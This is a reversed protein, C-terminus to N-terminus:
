FEPENIEDDDFGGVPGRNNSVPADRDRRAFSMFVGGTAERVFDPVEQGTTELEKILQEAIDRDAQHNPDFFSTAVGEGLRGTRGIRHIYTGRDGGSPLEYNIVHGLDTFDMGRAFVNTVVLVRYEGHRFGATAEERLPKLVITQAKIGEDSLMTAIYDATRKMEVFVLKKPLVGGNEESEKKLMKLLYMKREDIPVLVFKQQIRKNATSVKNKIMVSDKRCLENAIQAIEGEFTASFFLTQRVSADPFGSVQTMQVIDDMFSQELLRDAEDLVLFQLGELKLHGESLLHKMRGPTGVLIDCGETELSRKNVGMNYEGYCFNVKVDTNNAFKSAQEYLQKALERTPEIVLASVKMRRPVDPEEAFSTRGLASGTEAQGKVDYGDLVLPMAYQQFKRPKAYNSRQVNKLIQPLFKAEEWTEYIQVNEPGNVVEVNCDTDFLNDAVKARANDDNFIEDIDRCKPIFSRAPARDDDFNDRNFDRRPPGDFNDRGAFGGRRGGFGGRRGGFSQENNDYNNRGLNLYNIERRLYKTMGRGGFDNRDNRDNQGFGGRRHENNDYNNRDNQNDRTEGFNGRRGFGTGRAPQDNNEYNNRGRGSSFGNQDNQNDRNEGFGGRRGFGRTLPQGNNEYTAEAEALVKHPVPIVIKVLFDKAVDVVSVVLLRSIITTMAEVDAILQSIM